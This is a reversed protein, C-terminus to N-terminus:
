LDMGAGNIRLWAKREQYTPLVQDVLKDQNASRVASIPGAWSYPSQHSSRCGIHAPSQVGWHMPGGKQATPSIFDM